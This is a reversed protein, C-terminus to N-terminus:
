NQHQATKSTEPWLGLLKGYPYPLRLHSEGGESGSQRIERM